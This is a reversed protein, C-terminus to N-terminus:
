GFRPATKISGLAHRQVPSCLTGEINKDSGFIDSLHKRNKKTINKDQKGTDM